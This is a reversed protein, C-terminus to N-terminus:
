SKQFRYFAKHAALETVGLKLAAARIADEKLRYKRPYKRQLEIVMVWVNQDQRDRFEKQRQEHRTLLDGSTIRIQSEGSAEDRSIVAKTGDPRAPRGRGRKPPNRAIEILLTVIGRLLEVDDREAMVEMHEMVAEVRGRKLQSRYRRLEQERQAPTLCIQQYAGADAPVKSTSRKSTVSDSRWPGFM